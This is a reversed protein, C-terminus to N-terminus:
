NTSRRIQLGCTVPELGRALELRTGISTSPSSQSGSSSRSPNSRPHLSLSSTRARLGPRRITVCGAPRRVPPAVRRRRPPPPMSSLSCVFRVSSTPSGLVGIGERGGSTARASRCPPPNGVRKKGRACAYALRLPVSAALRPLSYIQQSVGESTRIRGEGGVRRAFALCPRASARLSGFTLSTM